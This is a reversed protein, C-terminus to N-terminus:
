GMSHNESIQNIERIIQREQEVETNSSLVYIGAVHMSACSMFKGLGQQM